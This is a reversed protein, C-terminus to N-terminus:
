AISRSIKFIARESVITKECVSERRKVIAKPLLRLADFFGMLFDWQGLVVYKVLHVPMFLLHQFILWPSRINKWVFLYLNRRNLRRLGSVGYDRKFSAQGVHYVVSKPIYYGKWGQRYARFCLDTDEVTGPLFLDDFGKLALLIRRKFAGFGCQMSIGQRHVGSEYGTFRSTGWPMGWRFEMKSLSGEYAKTDVNLAQSCAFFADPKREFVELLPDVFDPEVIIDNNLLIV